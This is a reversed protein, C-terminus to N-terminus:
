TQHRHLGNPRQAPKREETMEPSLKATASWGRQVSGGGEEGGERTGEKEHLLM